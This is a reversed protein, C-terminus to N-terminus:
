LDEVNAIRPGSQPSHGKRGRCGALEQYYLRVLEVSTEVGHIRLTDAIAAFSARRNRLQQIEEKFDLLRKFRVRLPTYTEVTTRLAKQIQASTGEQEHPQFRGTPFRSRFGPPVNPLWKDVRQRCNTMRKGNM